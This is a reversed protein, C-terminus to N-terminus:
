CTELGIKPAFYAPATDMANELMGCSRIQEIRMPRQTKLLPPASVRNTLAQAANVPYLKRYLLVCLVVLAVVVLVTVGMLVSVIIPDTHQLPPPPPYSLTTALPTPPPLPGSVNLCSELLTIRKDSNMSGHHECMLSYTVGNCGQPFTVQYTGNTIYSNSSSTNANCSPNSGDNQFSVPHDDNPEIYFTTVGPGISVSENSGDIYYVGSEVTIKPLGTLCGSQSLASLVLVLM